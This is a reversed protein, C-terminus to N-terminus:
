RKLPCRFRGNTEYHDKTGFISMQELLWGSAGFSSTTAGCRCNHPICAGM